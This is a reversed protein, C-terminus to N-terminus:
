RTQGPASLARCRFIKFLAARFLSLQVRGRVRSQTCLFRSAVRRRRPAPAFAMGAEGNTMGIKKERLRAFNMTLQVTERLQARRSRSPVIAIRGAVCASRKVFRRSKWAIRVILLREIISSSERTRALKILAECARARDRTWNPRAAFVYNCPLYKGAFM